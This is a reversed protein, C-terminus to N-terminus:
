QQHDSEHTLVEKQRDSLKDANKILLSVDWLQNETLSGGFGPRSSLIGSPNVQGGLVPAVTDIGNRQVYPLSLPHRSSSASIEVHYQPTPPCLSTFGLRAAAGSL